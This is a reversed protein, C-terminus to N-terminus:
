RGIIPGRDWAFGRNFEVLAQCYLYTENSAGESVIILFDIQFPTVSFKDSDPLNM